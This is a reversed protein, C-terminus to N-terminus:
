SSTVSSKNRGDDGGGTGAGTVDVTAGVGVPALAVTVADPGFPPLRIRRSVPLQPHSATYWEMYENSLEANDILIGPSTWVKCAATHYANDRTISIEPGTTLSQRAATDLCEKNTRTVDSTESAQNM